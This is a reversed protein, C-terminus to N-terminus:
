NTPVPFPPGLMQGPADLALIQSCPQARGLFPAVTARALAPWHSRFMAQCPHKGGKDVNLPASRCPCESSASNTMGREREPGQQTPCLSCVVRTDANVLGHGCRAPGFHGPASSENGCCLDGTPAAPQQLLSSACTRPPRGAVSFKRWITAHEYERPMVAHFNRHADLNQRNETCLALTIPIEERSGGGGGERGIIKYTHQSANYMDPLANSKKSLLQQTATPEHFGSYPLSTCTFSPLRCYHFPVPPHQPVGRHCFNKKHLLRAIFVWSTPWPSNNNHRCSHSDETPALCAHRRPQPAHVVFHQGCGTSAPGRRTALCRTHQVSCAPSVKRTRCKETGVRRSGPILSHCPLIQLQKLSPSVTPWQCLNRSAACHAERRTDLLHRLPFPHVAMATTSSSLCTTGTFIIAKRASSAFMKAQRDTM